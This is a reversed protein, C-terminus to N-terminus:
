EREPSPTLTRRHSSLWQEARERLFIQGRFWRCVQYADEGHESDYEAHQRAAHFEEETPASEAMTGGLDRHNNRAQPWDEFRAVKGVRNGGRRWASALGRDQWNTACHDAKEHCINEIMTLLHLIGHRDIYGEIMEESLEEDAANRM